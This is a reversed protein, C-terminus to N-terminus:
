LKVSDQYNCFWDVGSWCDVRILRVRQWCDSDCLQCHNQYDHHDHSCASLWEAQDPWEQQECVFVNQNANQFITWDIQILLLDVTCRSLFRLQYFTYVRMFDSYLNCLLFTILIIYPLRTTTFGIIVIIKCILAVVILRAAALRWTRICEMITAVTRTPIKQKWWETSQLWLM